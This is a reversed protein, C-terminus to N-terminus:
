VVGKARLRGLEEAGVGCIEGLLEATHEGLM